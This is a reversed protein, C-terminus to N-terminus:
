ANVGAGRRGIWCAVSQRYVLRQAGFLRSLAQKEPIIQLLTIVLVFLPPILWASASGLWLALRDVAAATASVDSQPQHSLGRRDGTAQAKGPDMPNVTTRM